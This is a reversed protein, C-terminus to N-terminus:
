NWARGCIALTHREGAALRRVGHPMAMGQPVQGHSDFGVCRTAAAVHAWGAAAVVATTTVAAAAPSGSAEVNNADSAADADADDRRLLLRLDGGSWGSLKVDAGPLYDQCDGWVYLHGLVDSALAFGWGGGHVDAVEVVAPTVAAAAAAAAPSGSAGDAGAGQSKSNEAVAASTSPQQQWCPTLRLASGEGGAGVGDDGSRPLFGCQLWRLHRPRQAPLMFAPLM